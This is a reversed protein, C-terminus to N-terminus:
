EILRVQEGDGSADAKLWVRRLSLMGTEGCQEGRVSGAYRRTCGGVTHRLEGLALTVRRSAGAAAAVVTARASSMTVHMAVGEAEAEAEAGAQPLDVWNLDWDVLRADVTATRWLEWLEWQPRRRPALPPPLGRMAPAAAATTRPRDVCLHPAIRELLQLPVAVVNGGGHM